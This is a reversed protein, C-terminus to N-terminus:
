FGSVFTFRVLGFMVFGLGFRVLGLCEVFM